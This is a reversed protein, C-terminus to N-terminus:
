IGSGIKEMGLGTKVLNPDANFFKLIKMFADREKQSAM